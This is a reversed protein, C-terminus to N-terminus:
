ERNSNQQAYKMCQMNKDKKIRKLRRLIAVVPGKPLIGVVSNELADAKSLKDM